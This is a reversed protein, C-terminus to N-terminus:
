CKVDHHSKISFKSSIVWMLIQKNKKTAGGCVCKLRKLLLLNQLFHFCTTQADSWKTMWALDVWWPEIQHVTYPKLFELCPSTIPLTHVSHLLLIFLPIMSIETTMNHHHSLPLFSHLNDAKIPTTNVNNQNQHTSNKKTKKNKKHSLLKHFKLLNQSM